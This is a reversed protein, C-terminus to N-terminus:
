DVKWTKVAENALWEQYLNLTQLDWRDYEAVKQALRFSTKSYAEKKTQFNTRKLDDKDLLIMNGLRDSIDFIGEGFEEDWQQNPHYPCVHELTSKTFDSENGLQREIETLLFRIKKSSQKSPMKHFEFANKFAIDQPYLSQFEASNKVHSARAFEKNFIKIAIQNYSREQDSPSLRCVTNYRISLVYLYRVLKIFEKSSFRSFAVMLIAFPQKINFLNLGELYHRAPGYDDEQSTWWEDYPSLLSSYVPAFETLSNLYQYASEPQNALQRISKFLDKKTVLRKQFHHHYRVFDTFNNEGLQSVISSWDEDLENLRESPVDEDQTIVSFIYNKLLDPTSLQVGRANLTEFVKYANLDNQVVIKTFIMGSTLQEVFAAIDRGTSGMNMKYFFEFCKKLLKNTATLGRVNPSKLNSCINRYFHHNNRNLSLKSSVKLSVIDKTGIFRSNLEKLREQNDEADEADDVLDQIKKMAALIILTSTVLRQQGDIVEFSSTGKGQLVIYGMYHFRELPMSEIDAWLEEWQEQTWAYDRQFRPVTYQVGNSFLEQFTENTPEMLMFNNM